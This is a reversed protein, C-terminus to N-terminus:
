SAARAASDSSENASAFCGCGSGNRPGPVGPHEEPGDGAQDTAVEPDRPQVPKAYFIRHTRDSRCGAGLCESSPRGARHGASLDCTAASDSIGRCARARDCGSGSSGLDSAIRRQRPAVWSQRAHMGGAFLDDRTCSCAANADCRERARVTITRRTPHLSKLSDYAARLRCGRADRPAVAPVTCRQNTRMIYRINVFVLGRSDM